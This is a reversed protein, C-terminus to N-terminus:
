SNGIGMSIGNVYGGEPTRAAPDADGIIAADGVLVTGNPYVEVATGASYGGTQLGASGFTWTTPPNSPDVIVPIDFLLMVAGGATLFINTVNANVPTPPPDPPGPLPDSWGPLLTKLAAENHRHAHRTPM